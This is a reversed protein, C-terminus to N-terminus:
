KARTAAVCYVLDLSCLAISVEEMAQVSMSRSAAAKHVFNDYSQRALAAFHAEEEASFGRSTSFVQATTLLRVHLAILIV